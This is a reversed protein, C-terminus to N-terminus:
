ALIRRPIRNEGIELFWALIRRINELMMSLGITVIKVSLCFTWRGAGPPTRSICRSWLGLLSVRVQGQSSARWDTWRALTRETAPVSQLRCKPKRRRKKRPKRRRRTREKTEEGWQTSCHEPSASSSATSINQANERVKKEKKASKGSKISCM